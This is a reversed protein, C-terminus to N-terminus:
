ELELRARLRAAANSSEIRIRRRGLEIVSVSVIGAVANTMFVETADQLHRVSLRGERPRLRLSPAQELVWRRMVGAIGSRDLVPTTLTSGRLVFLNSMTGCVLDGDIDRMLGEWIREDNWESRALVSDLRNLTKLGALAPNSGVPTACMRVRQSTQSVASPPPASLSLVRTCRERGNPRYGRIGPGRTLILKLVADAHPRARLKLERRLSPPRPALISLRRCGDYLRELHYELLRIRGARVRMTEFLGDGYQLGRDRCDVHRGVAGNIWARYAAPTDPAPRAEATV